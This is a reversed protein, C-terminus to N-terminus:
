MNWEDCGISEKYFWDCIMSRGAVATMFTLHYAWKQNSAVNQM